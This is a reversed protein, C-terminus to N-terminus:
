TRNKEDGSKKWSTFIEGGWKEPSINLVLPPGRPNRTQKKTLIVSHATKRRRSSALEGAKTKFQRYIYLILKSFFFFGLFDGSCEWFLQALFFCRINTRKMVFDRCFRPASQSGLGALDTGSLAAVIESFRPHHPGPSRGPSPRSCSGIIPGIPHPYFQPM